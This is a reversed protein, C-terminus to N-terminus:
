DRILAVRLPLFQGKQDPLPLAFCPPAQGERDQYLALIPPLGMTLVLKSDTICYSFYPPFGNLLPPVIALIVRAAACKGASSTLCRIFVAGLTMYRCRQSM